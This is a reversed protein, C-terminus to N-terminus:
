HRFFIVISADTEMSGFTERLTNVAKTLGVAARPDNLSGGGHFERRLADVDGQEVCLRDLDVNARPYVLALGRHMSTLASSLEWNREPLVGEDEMYAASFPLYDDLGDLAAPSPALNGLVEDVEKRQRRASADELRRLDEPSAIVLSLRSTTSVGTGARM